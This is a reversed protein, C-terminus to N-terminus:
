ELQIIEVTLVADQTMVHILEEMVCAHDATPIAMTDERASTVSADMSMLCVCVSALHYMVFITEQGLKMVTALMVGKHVLDM